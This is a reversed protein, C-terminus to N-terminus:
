EYTLSQRVNVRTANHAPIISALISLALVIVLWIFVASWNFRYDLSSQFM